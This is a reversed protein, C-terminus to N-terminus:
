GYRWIIEVSPSRKRADRLVQELEALAKPTPPKPARINYIIPSTPYRMFLAFLTAAIQVHKHSTVADKLEFGVDLTVEFVEVQPTGGPSLVVYDPERYLDGAKAVGGLNTKPEKLLTTSAPLGAGGGKKAPLRGKGTPEPVGLTTALTEGV